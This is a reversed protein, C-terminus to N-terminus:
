NRRKFGSDVERLWRAFRDCKEPDTYRKAWETFALMCETFALTCATDMVTGLEPDVRWHEGEIWEPHRLLFIRAM